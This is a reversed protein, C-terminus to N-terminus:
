DGLLGPSDYDAELRNAFGDVADDGVGPQAFYTVTATVDAPGVEAALFGIGHGDDQVACEGAGLAAPLTGRAVVTKAGPTAAPANLTAAVLQTCGKGALLTGIETANAVTIIEDEILRGEVPIYIVEIETVADAANFALNGLPNIAVEGAAPAADTDIATFYGTAAGAQVYCGLVAKAKATDPLVGINAAVTVIEHRAVLALGDGMRALNNLNALDNPNARNLGERVTM